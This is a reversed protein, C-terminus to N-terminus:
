CPETQTKKKKSKRPEDGDGTDAKRKKETKLRKQEKEARKAAKEAKRQTKEAKRKRKDERTEQQAGQSSIDRKSKLKKSVPDDPSEDSDAASAGSHVDCDPEAM